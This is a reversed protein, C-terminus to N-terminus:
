STEIEKVIVWIEDCARKYPCESCDRYEEDDDCEVIWHWLNNSHRKIWKGSEGSM